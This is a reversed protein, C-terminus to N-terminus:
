KKVNPKACCTPNPTAEEPTFTVDHAILQGFQMHMLTAVPSDSSANPSFTTSILRPEPLNIPEGGGCERRWGLSASLLRDEEDEGM